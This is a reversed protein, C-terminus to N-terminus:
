SPNGPRADDGRGAFADDVAREREDIEARLGDIMVELVADVNYASGAPMWFAYLVALTVAIAFTMLGFLVAQVRLLGDEPAVAAGTAAALLPFIALVLVGLVALLGFHAAPLKRQLAGLRQGRAERLSRVTEYVDGPSGVSTLWMVQELPDAYSASSGGLLATVPEASLKTLDDDVYRRVNELLQAAYEPRGRSVYAIQELLAKAVSVEAFLSVYLQEQQNYLWAFTNVLLLSFMVDIANVYNQFYQGEDNALVALGEGNIFSRLWVALPGFAVTGVIALGVSPALAKSLTSATAAFESSRLTAALPATTEDYKQPAARLPLTHVRVPARPLLLATVCRTLVALAAVRRRAMAPM